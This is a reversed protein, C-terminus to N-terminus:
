KKLIKETEIQKFIDHMFQVYLEEKKRQEPHFPYIFILLSQVWKTLSASRSYTKLLRGQTNYIEATASYSYSYPIPLLTLSVSSGITGLFTKAFSKQRMFQVKIIFDHQQMLSDKLVRRAPDNVDAAYDTFTSYQQVNSFEKLADQFFDEFGRIREYQNDLKPIADLGKTQRYHSFIFLASVRDAEYNKEPASVLTGKMDSKFTACGTILQAVILLFAILFLQNFKM